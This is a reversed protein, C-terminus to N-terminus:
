DHLMVDKGCCQGFLCLKSGPVKNFSATVATILDAVRYDVSFVWYIFVPAISESVPQGLFFLPKVGLTDQAM